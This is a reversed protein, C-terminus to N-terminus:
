EERMTFIACAAFGLMFGVCLAIYYPAFRMAHAGLAAVMSGLTVTFGYPDLAMWAMAPLAVLVLVACCLADGVSRFLPGRSM